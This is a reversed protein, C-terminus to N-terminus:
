PLHFAGLVDGSSEPKAPKASGPTRRSQRNAPKRQRTLSPGTDRGAGLIWDSDDDPFEFPVPPLKFILPSRVSRVRIECTVLRVDGNGGVAAESILLARCSM